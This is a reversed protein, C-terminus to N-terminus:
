KKKSTVKTSNKKKFCHYSLLVSPRVETPEGPPPTLDKMFVIQFTKLKDRGEHKANWTRCLYKGFPLRLKKHKKSWLRRMFKRWRINPYLGSVDEPHMRTLRYQIDDEKGKEPLVKTWTRKEEETAWKPEGGQFLDVEEGSVLKGPIAHWGGDKIPYPAFMSWRQDLRLTYGISRQVGKLAWTDANSSAMNFQFVIWLCLAIPAQTLFFRLAVGWQTKSRVAWSWGLLTRDNAELRWGCKDWFWGPLLFMWSTISIFPFLGLEMGAFFGIHMGIFAVVVFTGLTHKSFTLESSHYNSLLLVYPCFWLFLSLVGHDSWVIGCLLHCTDLRAVDMRSQPYLECLTTQCFLRTELRLVGGHRKEM